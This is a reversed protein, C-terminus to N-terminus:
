RPLWLQPDEHRARPRRQQQAELRCGLRPQGPTPPRPPGPPLPSHAAPRPALPFPPTPPPARPWPPQAHGSASLRAGPGRAEPPGPGRPGAASPARAAERRFRRRAAWPGAAGRRVLPNSYVDGSGYAGWNPVRNRGRPGGRGSAVAAPVIVTPVLLLAALSGGAIWKNRPRAALWEKARTLAGGAPPAGAELGPKADGPEAINVVMDEHADAVDQHAPAM